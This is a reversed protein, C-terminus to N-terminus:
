DEKVAQQGAGRKLNAIEAKAEKLWKIHRRLTARSAIGGMYNQRMEVIEWQERCSRRQNHIKRELKLTYASLRQLKEAACKMLEHEHGYEIGEAKAWYYQLGEILKDTTYTNRM